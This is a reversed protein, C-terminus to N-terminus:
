EQKEFPLDTNDESWNEMHLTGSMGELQPYIVALTAIKETINESDGFNVTVTEYGLIMNSYEDYHISNPLIEYKKLGQTVTLLSKLVSKKKIPIKKHLTVEEVDVGTIEMIGEIRESSTEVVVGDKDFYANQGVSPIYICGIMEKERVQIVLTHPAKLRVKPNELFPMETADRLKYKLYVYMSNWSYDDDLIWQKIVEDQYITSGTVEVKEVTFVKYSVVGFVALLLILTLLMWLIIKVVRKGM